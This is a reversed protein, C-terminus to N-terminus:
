PTRTKYLECLISSGFCIENLKFRALAQQKSASRVNRQPQLKQYSSVDFDM